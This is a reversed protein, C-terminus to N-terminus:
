NIGDMGFLKTLLQYNLVVFITSDLIPVQRQQMLIQSFWTTTIDFKQSVSNDTTGFNDETSLHKKSLSGDGM